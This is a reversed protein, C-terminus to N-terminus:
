RYSYEDAMHMNVLQVCIRRMCWQARVTRASTLLLFPSGQVLELSGPMITFNLADM